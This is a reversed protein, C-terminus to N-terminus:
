IGYKLEELVNKLEKRSNEEEFFLEKLENEINKMELEYNIEEENKDFEIYKSPVLSFDKLKDTSISACYEKVDCYTKEKNITQWNHYTEAFEKIDNHTFEIYKKEFPHGKQRLDMFLIENTRDRFEIEKGNKNIKRAKKNKNFIM